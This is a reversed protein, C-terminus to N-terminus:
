KLKYSIKQGKTKPLEEATLAAILKDKMVQGDEGSFTLSQQKVGSWTMEFRAEASKFRKM